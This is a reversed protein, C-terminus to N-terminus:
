SARLLCKFWDQASPNSVNSAQDRCKLESKAEHNGGSLGLALCGAAGSPRSEFDVFGQREALFVIGPVRGASAKVDICVDRGIQDPQADRFETWRKTWSIM